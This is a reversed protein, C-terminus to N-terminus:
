YRPQTAPRYINLEEGATRALWPNMRAEAGAPFPLLREDVHNALQLMARLRYVLLRVPPRVARDASPRMVGDPRAPVPRHPPRAPPEAAAPAAAPLPGTAPSADGPVPSPVPAPDPMAALPEPETAAAAASTAPAAAEAPQPRPRRPMPRRIPRREPEPQCEKAVLLPGGLELREAAWLIARINGANIARSLGEVVAHRMAVFRSDSERRLMEWEAAIRRRLGPSRQLARWITSRSLTFHRAVETVTVGSALYYAIRAWQEDSRSRNNLGETFMHEYAYEVDEGNRWAEKDESGRWWAERQEDKPLAAHAPDLQAPDLSHITPKTDRPM